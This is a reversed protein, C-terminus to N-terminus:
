RYFLHDDDLLLLFLCGTMSVSKEALERPSSAIQVGLNQSEDLFGKTATANTDCVLLEDAQPIRARLNRAM